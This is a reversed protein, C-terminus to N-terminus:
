IINEPNIDIYVSVGIFAKESGTVKLMESMMERFRASNKCKLILRYRFKNSIKSVRAAMPGLAIIKLENYEGSLKEKLIETFRQSASKVKNENEGVFGILCIDCYPPYILMKRTRIEDEFFAEYDQKAAIQIVDNQPNCTQIVATGKFKGRGARGVVQTLLDFTREQSRFDDNNLQQDANIVGVLTVNEFDLGKAVMQTGLLIDYKGDAFDRLKKEHSNRGYTSDADMRLIRADPFLESLEDEIKQTGTGSYRLDNSGCEPCVSTFPESYGCYHCMLRGNAHHYTMSISCSPCTMVHGCAKCEAFTNYGRRNILLISQKGNELNYELRDKLEESFNSSKSLADTLMDVIRVEPLVSDSFRKTLKCVKYMGQKAKAYTEVSPTASSFVLLAKHYACRFRAVDKASYRPTQESKYTHEQEEDIIILGLNELPAFVASRTGVVIRVNDNRVRKWEDMRQGASLASHFVAVDAGYRSRFLNLTQPTLAIEPVMVIINKGKELMEDILRIYVMTKGSGTIGHLLATLVKGESYQSLLSEFAAQQEENLVIKKKEVTVSKNECPDRYVENDFIEVLGKKELAQIVSPTFGTFYCVEKVTATGIDALTNLVELQKKTLKQSSALVEQGSETLRVTKVTLDQTRRVSDYNRLLLGKKAMDELMSLRPEFGLKKLIKEGDIYGKQSSLYNYIQKEDEICDSIDANPVATYNTVTRRCMGSPLVAKVAEFYTCFTRDKLWGVLKLMEDNLVPFGDIVQSVKKLKEVGNYESVSLVIGQRCRNGKGFPVLVRCGPVCKEDETIYSFPIDFSFASNEVAVAAIRKESM